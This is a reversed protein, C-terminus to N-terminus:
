KSLTSFFFFSFLTTTHLVCVCVYTTREGFNRVAFNARMQTAHVYYEYSPLYQQANM